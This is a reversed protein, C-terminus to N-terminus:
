WGTPGALRHVTEQRMVILILSIVVPIVFALMHTKCERMARSWAYLFYTGAANSVCMGIFYSPRVYGLMIPTEKFLHFLNSFGSGFELSAIAGVYMPLAYSPCHSTAYRTGAICVVHHLVMLPRMIVPPEPIWYWYLLDTMLYAYFSYLACGAAPGLGNKSCDLCWGKMSFRQSFAAVLCSGSIVLFQPFLVLGSRWRPTGGCDENGFTNYMPRRLAEQCAMSVAGLLVGADVFRGKAM